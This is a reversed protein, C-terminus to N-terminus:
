RRRRRKRIAGGGAVTPGIFIFISRRRITPTSSMAKAFWTRARAFTAGSLSAAGSSRGARGCCHRSRSPNLALARDAAADARPTVGGAREAEALVLLVPPRQPYKAAIARAARREQLRPEATVVPKSRLYLRM